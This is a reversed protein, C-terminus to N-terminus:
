TRRWQVLRRPGPLLLGGAVVAALIVPLVWAWATRGAVRISRGDSAGALRAAPRAPAESLGETKLADILEPAARTWGGPVKRTRNWDVWTQGSPTFVWPGGPASPYLDHVIRDFEPGRPSHGEIIQDIDYRPGLPRVPPHSVPRCSRSFTCGIRVASDPLEVPGAPGPGDIVLRVVFKAQAPPAITMLAAAMTGALLSRRMM